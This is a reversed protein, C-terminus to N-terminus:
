QPVTQTRGMTGAAKYRSHLSAILFAMRRAAHWISQSGQIPHRGSDAVSGPRLSSKWHKNRGSYLHAGLYTTEIQNETFRVDKSQLSFAPAVLRLIAQGDLEDVQFPKM